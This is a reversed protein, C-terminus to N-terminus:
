AARLVVSLWAAVAALTEGDPPRGLEARYTRLGPRRDRRLLHTLAAPGVVAIRRGDVGHRGALWDLASAADATEADFGTTLYDGDSDGVGRKDYRLTAIGSECLADALASGIGLAQGRMNSDRDVPGSGSLVLAAPQPEPRDPVVLTGALREGEAGPFQVESVM